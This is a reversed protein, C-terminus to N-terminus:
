TSHRPGEERFSRGQAALASRLREIAKPGVGHLRRLDAESVDAVLEIWELGAGLLARRAPAGIDSPLDGGRKPNSETNM